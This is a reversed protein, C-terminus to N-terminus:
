ARKQRAAGVGRHASEHAGRVGELITRYLAVAYDGIRIAASADDSIPSYAQQEIVKL